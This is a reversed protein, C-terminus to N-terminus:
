NHDYLIGGCAWLVAEKIYRPVTFNDNINQSLAYSFIGKGVVEIHEYIFQSDKSLDEDNEYEGNKDIIKTLKTLVTGTKKPWISKLATALAVTNDIGM